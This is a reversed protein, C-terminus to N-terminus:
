CDEQRPYTDDRDEKRAAAQDDADADDESAADQPDEQAEEDTEILGRLNIAARKRQEEFMHSYRRLTFSPDTHGVRDAITRPDLGEKVLLSVHLHRLDHLRIKPVKAKKLLQYWTREFSRPHISTGLQTTFVLGNEEWAEGLKAREKEQRARHQALVEIVDESVAVYRTGRETKPASFTPKNDVLTLAQEIRITGDQVDEWRLGLLEGRRLGTAMILYFAAYLRDDESAALFEAMQKHTWLKMKAPSEKLPDVAEVVNRAILQWRVAQKLAGFLLTRCINATRVGAEDAIQGVMTQVQLATLKRLKVQGIIPKIHAHIYHEYLEATREKVQRSKEAHWRLLYAEVTMKDDSLGQTALEQNLRDLKERVERRTKGYVTVRRRKGGADYGVSIQAQWRGDKRKFISGEGKGRRRAM